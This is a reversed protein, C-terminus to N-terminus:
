VRQSLQFDSHHVSNFRSKGEEPNSDYAYPTKRLAISFPAEFRTALPTNMSEPHRRARISNAPPQKFKGCIQQLRANERRTLPEALIFPVLWLCILLIMNITLIRFNSGKLIPLLPSNQKLIFSNEDNVRLVFSVPGFNSM